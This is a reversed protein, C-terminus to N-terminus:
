ATAELRDLSQVVVASVGMSDVAELARTLVARPAPGTLVAPERGVDGPIIREVPVGTRELVSAV